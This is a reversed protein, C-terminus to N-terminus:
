INQIELFPLGKAELGDEYFSDYANKQVEETFEKFASIPVRVSESMFYVYKESIAYSYPVDNNGVPAYFNKIEEDSSFEYVNGGIFLYRFPKTNVLISNGLFEDNNTGLWTTTKNSISEGIWVKMYNKITIVHEIYLWANKYSNEIDRDVERVYFKDQVERYITIQEKSIYVIYPRGGNDHTFYIQDNAHKKKIEQYAENDKELPSKEPDYKYKLVWQLEVKVKKFGKPVQTPEKEFENFDIIKFISGEKNELGELVYIGNGKIKEYRVFM